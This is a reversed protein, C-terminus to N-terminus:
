QVVERQEVSGGAFEVVGYLEFFLRQFNPFLGEAFLVGVISRREAVKGVKIRAFAIKVLRESIAVLSEFDAFVSKALLMGVIRLREVVEGCVIIVCAIVVLSNPKAVKCKINPFM